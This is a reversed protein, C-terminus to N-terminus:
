KIKRMHTEQSEGPALESPQGQIGHKADGWQKAVVKNDQFHIVANIGRDFDQYSWAQPTKMWPKGLMARVVEPSDGDSITEFRDYTLKQTCGCLALALIALLALRSVIPKM